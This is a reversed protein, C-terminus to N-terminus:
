FADLSTLYELYTDVTPDHVFGLAELKKKSTKGCDIPGEIGGDLGALTRVACREEYPLDKPEPGKLGKAEWELDGIHAKMEAAYLATVPWEQKKYFAAGDKRPGIGFVYQKPNIKV